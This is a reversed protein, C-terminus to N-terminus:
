GTQHCATPQSGRCSGDQGDASIAAFDSVRNAHLGDRYFVSAREGPRQIWPQRCRRRPWDM